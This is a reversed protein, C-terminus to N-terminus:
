ILDIDIDEFQITDLLKRKKAEELLEEIYNDVFILYDEPLQSLKEQVVSIDM